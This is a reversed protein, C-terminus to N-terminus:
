TGQVNQFLSCLTADWIVSLFLCSNVTGTFKSQLRTRCHVTFEVETVNPLSLTLEFLRQDKYHKSGFMIRRAKAVIFLECSAGVFNKQKRIKM